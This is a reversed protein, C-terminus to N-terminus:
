FRNAYPAVYQAPSASLQYSNSICYSQITIIVKCSASAKLGLPM